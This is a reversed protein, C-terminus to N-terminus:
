VDISPKKQLGIVERGRMRLLVEPPRLGGFYQREVPAAM